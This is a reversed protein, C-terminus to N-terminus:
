RVHRALELAQAKTLPGELRLTLPGRTWLLVNGHILIPQEHFRFDRDFYTLVHPQGSLWLGPKGNVQLRELKAGPGLLKEVAEPRARFESLVAAVGHARVVLSILSDGIAYVRAPPQGKFPPLFLKFGVRQEGEERPLREGLGGARSREVAPPLTEVRVVTAGGLHFFRMIASRAQPVAFATAVAVAVVAFAVVVPRLPFPRRGELRNAVQEALDPAVPLELERGLAVLRLELESM